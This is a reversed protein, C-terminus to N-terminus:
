KLDVRFVPTTRDALHGGVHSRVDEPYVDDYSVIDKVDRFMKGCTIDHFLETPVRDGERFEMIRHKYKYIFQIREKQWFRLLQIELELIDRDTLIM